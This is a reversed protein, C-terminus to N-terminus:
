RARILRAFDVYGGDWIKRKTIDDVQSGIVSFDEDVIVSHLLESHNSERDSGCHEAREGEYLALAREENHAFENNRGPVELMEAKAEETKRIMERSRDEANQKERQEKESVEKRYEKLRCDLFRQFLIQEQDSLKSNNSQITEPSNDNATQELFGEEESSTSIRKGGRDDGSM